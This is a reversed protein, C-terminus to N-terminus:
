FSSMEECSTKNTYTISVTNVENIDVIVINNTDDNMSISVPGYKESSGDPFYIAVNENDSEFETDDNLDEVQNQLSPINQFEGDNDEMEAKIKNDIVLIKANKGNIEANCQVFRNLSVYNDIKYEISSNAFVNEYCMISACSFVLILVVSMLTEILTYGSKKKDKRMYKDLEKQASDSLPLVKNIQILAEKRTMHPQNLRDELTPWKYKKEM